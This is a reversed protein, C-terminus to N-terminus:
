LVLLQVYVHSSDASEATIDLECSLTGRSLTGHESLADLVEDYLEKTLQLM